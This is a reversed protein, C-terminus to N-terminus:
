RANATVGPWDDTRFPTVPLGVTDYLNVVPNDAWGYRVAAPDRVADSHVKVEDNGVIQADAWVWKRDSGAIAFGVVPKGDTTRLKGNVGGFRILIADGEKSM